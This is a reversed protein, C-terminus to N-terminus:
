FDARVALDLTLDWPTGAGPLTDQVVGVAADLTLGLPGLPVTTPASFFLGWATADLAEPGSVLRDTALAVGIGPAMRTDNREIPIAVVASLGGHGVTSTVREVTPEPVYRDATYRGRTRTEIASRGLAASASGRMELAGLPQRAAVSVSLARTATVVEGDTDGPRAPRHINPGFLRSQRGASLGGSLTLGGGLRVGATVVPPARFRFLTQEPAATGLAAFPGPAATLQASACPALLVVAVLAVSRFSM